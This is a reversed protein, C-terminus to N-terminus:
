FMTLIFKGYGDTTDTAMEVVATEWTRWDVITRYALYVVVGPVPEGSVIDELHGSLNYTNNPEDKKCSLFFLLLVLVLIFKKM